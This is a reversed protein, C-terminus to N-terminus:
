VDKGVGPRISIMGQPDVTLSVHCEAAYDRYRRLEDSTPHRKTVIHVGRVSRRSEVLHCAEAVRERMHVTHGLQSMPMSSGPTPTSISM